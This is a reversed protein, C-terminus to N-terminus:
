VHWGFLLALVIVLLILGFPTYGWYGYGRGGGYVGGGLAFVLLVILILLLM